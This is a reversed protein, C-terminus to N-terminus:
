RRTAGPPGRDDRARRVPRPRPYAPPSPMGRDRRSWGSAGRPARPRRRRRAPLDAVGRRQVGRAPVGAAPHLLGALADRGREAGSRRLHDEGAAAGLAVVEGDLADEPGPAVASGRRLRTTAVRPRVGRPAPRPASAPGPVLAGCTLQSGTSAAPRTATSASRSSSSRWPSSIATTVAIHALLSTPVTCGTASSAASAASRPMGNWVSAIWATPWTGTSKAAERRRRASRRGPVLEAARGADARQQEARSTPQVGSSCPPPWSRSTREPVSSTAPM